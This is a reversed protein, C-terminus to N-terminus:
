HVRLAEPNLGAYRTFEEVFREDIRAREEPLLHQQLHPFWRGEEEFVHHAVADRIHTLKDRWEQSLPDLKQLLAMEIKVMAQEEYALQANDKQNSEALAPYLVAEEAQSHGTLLIALRGLSQRRRDAEGNLAAEFLAEIRRHHDLVTSLWDGQGALSEAVTRANAREQATEPPMIAAALKDILSM